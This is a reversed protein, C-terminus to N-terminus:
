VKRLDVPDYLIIRGLPRLLIKVSHTPCSAYSVCAVRQEEQLGALGTKKVDQTGTTQRVQAIEASSLEVIGQEAAPTCRSPEPSDPVDRGEHRRVEGAAHRCHPRQCRLRPAGEEGGEAGVAGEGPLQARREGTTLQVRPVVCGAERQSLCRCLGGLLHATNGAHIGAATTAAPAPASATSSSAAPVARGSAAAGAGASTRAGRGPASPARPGPWWWWPPRGCGVLKRGSGSMRPM